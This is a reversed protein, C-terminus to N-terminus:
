KYKKLGIQMYTGLFYFEIRIYFEITSFFAKINGVHSFKKASNTNNM